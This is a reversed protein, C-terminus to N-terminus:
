GPLSAPLNEGNQHLSLQVQLMHDTQKYQRGVQHGQMYTCVICLLVFSVNFKGSSSKWYENEHATNKVIFFSFLYNKLSKIDMTM